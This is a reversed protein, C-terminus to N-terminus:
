ASKRLTGKSREKLAATTARMADLASKADTTSSSGFQKGIAEQQVYGSDPRNNELRCLKRMDEIAALTTYDKGAVREIVLHGRSHELRLSKETIGGDPFALEAAVSLRLPTDPGINDNDHKM